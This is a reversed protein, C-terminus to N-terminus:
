IPGVPLREPLRHSGAPLVNAPLHYTGWVGPGQSPDMVGLM